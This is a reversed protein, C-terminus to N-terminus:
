VWKLDHGKNILHKTYEKSKATYDDDNSCILCLRLAVGKQM